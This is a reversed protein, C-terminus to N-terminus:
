DQESLGGPCGSLAHATGSFQHGVGREFSKSSIFHLIWFTCHTNGDASSSPFASLPSSIRFFSSISKKISIKMFVATIINWRRRMPGQLFIPNMQLLRKVPKVRDHPLADLANQCFLHFFSAQCRNDCGMIQSFEFIDAVMYSKKMGKSFTGIKRRKDMNFNKLYQYYEEKNFNEYLSSIMDTMPCVVKTLASQRIQFHPHLHRRCLYQLSHSLCPTFGDRELQAYAKQITNPNISLEM